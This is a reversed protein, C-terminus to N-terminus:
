RGTSGFGGDGRETVGSLESESEVIEVRFPQLDGACIQFLRDYQKCDRKLVTKWDNVSNNKDVVAMIEGRYGSDIIGVSNALRMCTKVISSRPYLYYGSYKMVVQIPPLHTHHESFPRGHNARIYNATETSDNFMIRYINYDSILCNLPFKKIIQGNYSSSHLEIETESIDTHICINAGWENKFNHVLACKINLPLKFTTESLRNNLYTADDEWYNCPILLDFGSDPFMSSDLKRNHAASLEKYKVLLEPNGPKVYVKLVLSEHGMIESLSTMKNKNVQQYQITYLSTVSFLIFNINNKSVCNFLQKKLYTYIM